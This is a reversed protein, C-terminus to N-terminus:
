EETVKSMLSREREILGGKSVRIAYRCPQTILSRGSLGHPVHSSVYPMTTMVLLGFSITVKAVFCLSQKCARCVQDALLLHMSERLCLRPVM